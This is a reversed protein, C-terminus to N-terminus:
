RRRRKKLAAIRRHPFKLRQRPKNLQSYGFWKAMARFYFCIEKDETNPDLLLDIITTVAERITAKNKESVKPDTLTIATLSKARELYTLMWQHSTEDNTELWSKRERKVDELFGCIDSIHTSLPWSQWDNIMYQDEELIKFEM